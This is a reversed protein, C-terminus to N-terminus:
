HVLYEYLSRVCFQSNCAGSASRQLCQLVKHYFRLEDGEVRGQAADADSSATALLAKAYVLWAQAVVWDDSLLLVSLNTQIMRVARQAEGLHIFVESLYVLSM